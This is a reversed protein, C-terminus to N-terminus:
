TGPGSPKVDTPGAESNGATWKKVAIVIVALGALLLVYPAAYLVLNFGHPQPDLLIWEGYKSVFYAKVEAPTKGQALQTKVLNRMEGALESPSDQISEGQCIPCRLQSAVGRTAADLASDSMTASHISMGATDATQPPSGQACLPASALTLLALPAVITWRTRATV